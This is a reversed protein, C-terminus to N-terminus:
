YHIRVRYFERPLINVSGIFTHTRGLTPASLPTGVPTWFSLNTSTELQYQWTAVIPLSLSVHNATSMQFTADPLDKVAQDAPVPWGPYTHLQQIEADTLLGQYFRVDTLKGRLDLSPSAGPRLGLTIPRGADPM